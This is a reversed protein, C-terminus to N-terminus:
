SGDTPAPLTRRSIILAPTIRVIRSVPVFDSSGRKQSIEFISKEARDLITCILEGGMGAMVITDIEEPPCADLGDSLLFTIRDVMACRRATERAKELPMANIDSAFLRGSYGNVALAAPLYGHDTGVDILGRGDSIMSYILELRKNM